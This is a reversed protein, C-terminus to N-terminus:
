ACVEVSRSAAARRPEGVPDTELRMHGADQRLVIRRRWAPDIRPHDERYHAGRSETRALAATAVLRAVTVLERTPGADRSEAALTDLRGLAARLAGGTRVLGVADWMLRRVDAEVAPVTVADRAVGALALAAGPDGPERPEVLTDGISRAVRAGFVLGELLSNSALRNAGHVGTCAVEGAAWLGGVSARGDLDVLVGGMHYHAAPAVPIPERRPDLGHRRCAEFV